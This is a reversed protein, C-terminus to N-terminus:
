VLVGGARPVALAPSLYCFEVGEGIKEEEEEGAMGTYPVQAGIM